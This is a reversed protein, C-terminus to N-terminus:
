NDQSLVDPPETPFGGQRELCMLSSLLFFSCSSCSSRRMEVSIRFALRLCAAPPLHCMDGACLVVAGVTKVQELKTDKRKTSMQAPGAESDSLLKFRQRLELMEEMRAAMPTQGELIM